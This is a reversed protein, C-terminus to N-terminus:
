PKPPRYDNGDICKDYMAKDIRVWDCKNIGRTNKCTPSVPFASVVKIWRDQLKSIDRIEEAVESLDQDQSFIIAVDYEKKLALRVIDLAIRIDIGKEQGVLFSLSGAPTEVIQNRYRLSRSFTHIGAAAMYKLKKSWFYNWFPNDCCDPIGTYFRVQTINWNASLCVQESLLLPNYNPYPYGFATRVAHYLNQGDFFTVARKPSPEAPM